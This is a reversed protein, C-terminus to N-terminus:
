RTGGVPSRRHVTHDDIGTGPACSDGSHQQGMMSAKGGLFEVQHSLGLRATQVQWPKRSPGDGVIRLRVTPVTRILDALATLLLDYGKSSVLPGVALLQAAPHTEATAGPVPLM